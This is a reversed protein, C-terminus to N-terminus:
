CLERKGDFEVVHKFIHGRDAIFTDDRPLGMSLCESDVLGFYKGSSQHRAIKLLCFVLGELTLKMDIVKMSNTLAHVCTGIEM